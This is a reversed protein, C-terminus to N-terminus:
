AAAGSTVGSTVGSDRVGADARISAEWCQGCGVGGVKPRQSHTCAEHVTAALPHRKTFHAAEVVVPRGPQGGGARASKGARDQKRVSRVAQRAQAVPIQGTRVRDRSDDDLDLLALYGSITSASLGTRRAIQSPALGRNRLREFLEAKEMPQLDARQLNEVVMVLLQESLDDDLNHRIVCPVAACGAAAAAAARRHGALILWRDPETLHETVILPEIVGHEAISATLEALDALDARPNGWHGILHNLKLVRASQKPKTM